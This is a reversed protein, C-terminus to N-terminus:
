EDPDLVWRAFGEIRAPTKRLGADEAIKTAHELSADHGRFGQTVGGERYVIMRDGTLTVAKSTWRVAIVRPEEPM